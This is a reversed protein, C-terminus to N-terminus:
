SMPGARVKWVELSLTQINRPPLNTRLDRLHNKLDRIRFPPSIARKKIEARWFAKEWKPIVLLYLGKSGNLHRLVRPILAPPPFIWAIEYNWPRSFADTYESSMDKHDESVYRPVVASLNSAFLDIEPTGMSRFIATRTPQDLHWEQFTKQRSLSDAIGNYRGPLYKPIITIKYQLALHLIKSAICLLKQSKTGGQKRIYSAATKNDTQFLVTKGSVLELKKQLVEFLTWLEKQNCHWHNQSTNWHGSLKEDNIVAGWGIDSADTTIFVSPPAIQIDSTKSLNQLWWSLEEKVQDPFQFIKYRQIDPLSKAAIQIRRCHLFGLPIVNAAFNLKGLLQKAEMWSWNGKSLTNLISNKINSIKSSPLIKVNEKTDWILGLYEIRSKPTLDTKDSNIQWGLKTLFNMAWIAQETLKDAAQNMLLFDDLYVIVRIGRERLQSAVWNTIKSFISPASSLGFPLCNMNYIKGNFALSLYRTHSNQVPIHYYANSIDIKVLYDGQQLTQAVKSLSILRFRPPHVYFNLSRLNFILRHSGNPKQRLFIPSLYGSNFSNISIANVDLLNEIQQSM